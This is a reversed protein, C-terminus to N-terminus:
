KGLIEAMAEGLVKIGKEIDEDSSNSYNIRMTPVNRDTEYFPDGPTVLVHKELAKNMVDFAVVGEPLTAWIFMGGEPKTFTVGEPFYKDMAAMMKDAKDQYLAIIKAMHEDLSNEDLYKSLIMQTFISTHLDMTMKYNTLKAKLAPDTCTVWGIRVGPSVTKSFTGLMLCQEGLLTSFSDGAHGRFRLDGYPNDEVVYIDHKKFIEAAKERVEQTYTLGTPNQFNPILYAFKPSTEALTAELAECDIGDNTLPITIVEPNYLHFIQLAAMYTPGEVVVQDGDNVLCATILDIAQQSGNTILIDDATIHTIGQENYRNAIHQRLPLYGATSSYQLAVVGNEELVKQAAVAMGEVPFSIANPLGGGFSILEPSAAAKLIGAVIEGQLDPATVRDSFKVNM